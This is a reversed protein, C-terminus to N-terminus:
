TNSWPKTLKGLNNREIILFHYNIHMYILVRSGWQGSLEKSMQCDHVISVVLYTSGEFLLILGQFASDLTYIGGALIIYYFM